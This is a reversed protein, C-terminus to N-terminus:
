LRVRKFASIALERNAASSKAYTAPNWIEFKDLRGVLEVEKKLGIMESLGEPLCLRGVKDVSVKASNAAIHTELAAVEPDSMSEGKLRDRMEKWRAPPLVLLRDEEGVPWAILTFQVDPTQPRWESPVMVRRSADVGHRCRGNYEKEDTAETSPM